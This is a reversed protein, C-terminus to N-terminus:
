RWDGSLVFAAWTAPSVRPGGERPRRQAHEISNPDVKVAEGPGRSEHGEPDDRRLMALQAQRLAELKGLKRAWLNRYFEIMLARTAADEVSWLSAVVTRAGALHFARQLGFVGEGGAVEGLSTECASLVVLDAHSLDLDVIEEATLIGHDGTPVGHDDPEPPRNAGALVLGSLLLPNRGTVTSGRPIRIPGGPVPPQGFLWESRPDHWLASHYRPDAFFGHTALHIYRGRPMADVLRPKSAGRGELVIMPGAGDWLERLAEVEERSSALWPWRPWQGPDVAPLSPVRTPAEEARPAGRTSVWATAQDYDVGGLLILGVDASPGEPRTLLDFIGQGHTATGIAYNDLLYTGPRSGPLASWPVRALHRDPIIIVTHCGELHPELGEWLLTRLRHGPSGSGDGAPAYGRKLAARFPEIDVNISEAPGLEVWNASYGPPAERGRLVFADYVPKSGSDGARFREALPSFPWTQIIDVVACGPPLHTALDVVQVEEVPHRRRHSDSVRALERELYEKAGNLEALQRRRAESQGPAAHWSTIQSLRRRTQRLSELIRGAEEDEEVLRRNEILTRTARARTRWVVPYARACAEESRPRLAALLLDRAESDQMGLAQSEPLSPMIRGELRLSRELMERAFLESSEHDGRDQAILYSYLLYLGQMSDDPSRSLSAVKGLLSAADEDKGSLHDLLALMCAVPAYLEPAVGKGREFSKLATALLNRAEDLRDTKLYSGALMGYIAVNELRDPDEGVLGRAELLIEIAQDHEGRHHCTYALAMLCALYEAPMETRHSECFAFTEVLLPEAKAFDGIALYTETLTSMIIFFYPAGAQGSTRLVDRAEVALREAMAYDRRALQIRALGGLGAAVLPHSGGSRDEAAGIAKAFLREAEGDIRLFLYTYAADILIRPIDNGGAQEVECARVARGVLSNARAWDGRLFAISALNLAIDPSLDRAAGTSRSLSDARLLAEEARDYDSRKLCSEGLLLLAEAHGLSGAGPSGRYQALSETLHADADAYRGVAFDLTGLIKLQEALHGQQAGAETVPFRAFFSRSLEVVRLQVPIAGRFDGGEAHSTVEAKLQLLEELGWAPSDLYGHRAARGEAELRTDDAENRAAQERDQESLFVDPVALKAQESYYIRALLAATCPILLWVGVRVLRWPLLGGRPRARDEKEAGSVAIRLLRRRVSSATLRGAPRAVLLNELVQILSPPIGGPIAAPLDFDGSREGPVSTGRDPSVPSNRGTLMRFLIAGLDSLDDEPSPEPRERGTATCATDMASTRGRASAIGALRVRGDHSILINEPRVAGHAVGVDHMAELAGCVQALLSVTRDLPTPEGPDMMDKLSGFDSLESIYYCIGGDERIDGIELINPHGLASVRAIERRLLDLRERNLPEDPASVVRIAVSERGTRHRARYVRGDEGRDSRSEIIYEGLSKGVLDLEM